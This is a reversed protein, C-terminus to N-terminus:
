LHYTRALRFGVNPYPEYTFRYASRVNSPPDFFSGGRMTRSNATRVVGDTQGAPPSYLSHCWEWANGHMDFAGYPNPLKMGVSWLKSESNDSYWAYSRLLEVPEGFGYTSTTGARCMFEREEDTPLRYGTRSLFDAAIKMGEAYEGRDNPEYCWQDKPIGEQENLWNCYAVADYWAVLNVPDDAQQAYRADHKHDSRLKQFQEVTIEHSAVAFSHSLTVKKPESSETKEGMVFEVPGNIVAFTQGQSNVFWRCEQRRSKRVEVDINDALGNQQWSRLTWGAASHVGPDADDRYLTALQDTFSRRQESSLNQADFQGLALILAYRSVPDSEENIRTALVDPTAGLRALRDILFSRLSPDPAQQFLSWVSDAEGLEILCVAANAQKKWFADREAPEAGAPPLQKIRTQSEPIVLQSHNRLAALLPLFERDNDALLILPTLAKPKDKLYISLAAAVIPRQNSRQERRNQFRQILPDSLLSGVPRLMEIWEDSESAPVSVLATVVDEREEHWQKSAVDYQALAAAARIRQSYSGTQITEWLQKMLQEKHPELFSVIVPVDDPEAVLLQRLLFSVQSPDNKVMALSAHLKATPSSKEDAVIEKLLPTAWQQYESIDVLLKEMDSTNAASLSEVLAKAYNANLREEIQVAILLGVCVILLVAIGTLGSYLGIVRGAKGMMKRQPETWKRKETLTRISAWELFSPLHRNEPKSNWLAAREGLKLETRGKRSELQKRTLWDRLSPVLYDHTLQYFKSGPDSGSETQFGEPDTPTILRLEGDLIRLLDNFEGTRNAYGSAELLESHSRMHGKIDSGFEPLLAKLVERAAQQHLRHEPNGERSSFTEELFNVGIGETGGVEQLTAPIWQKAKVMEAFLALRVSVVKGDQALGSAVSRVFSQEDDSLKDSKAPLKGFAQGFKILVKEAHDVDFLDVTAFNHGEVIRNELERMFRTAAMAFDDRVMVVAQLSGGDCQRLAAVLETEQEARHAHLWQEFQDLVVVVKKGEGRRLLSFTEVLGLDQSPEPLSKRLGRLIRTETEDPTAEVYIATVDKSLRPLLGAKVLSSKGCGSPGYILGVSFTKDPDTEEFRTKWFQISEPLGNRNRPGPLLDLFFDADNADFSRLGKPVIQLEKTEQQPSQNWHLLDDALQAATAYRDSARKSLAKLCIRELEASISEDLERPHRPDVSVVQYLLENATSGRFPKMGTLLEYLVVGLSFIDSRGDLRHGEGRAQEPSMYAPTGALKRDKLYDEERIALGFDAVYPTADAGELLINGPKVDRHILRRNHAHHLAQAVTAILKASEDHSPCDQKIRDALTCGEIYKSVVYISGDDTRGVDHVPVINPHNLSAVIRAEALYQDADEAKQFRDATPVKIAVQRQLEEDYALYVRGFAGEGLVRQLRYRGLQGDGVTQNTIYTHTTTFRDKKDNGVSALESLKSRLQNSIDSFRSAFDDINPTTGAVQRAKFEGVALQLKAAPDSSLDPLRELYDEVKHPAETKWRRNQDTLLVALVDDGAVGKHQQLFEFVDPPSESSEWLEALQQPLNPIM